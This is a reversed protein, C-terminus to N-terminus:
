QPGMQVYYFPAATPITPTAAAGGASTATLNGITGATANPGVAPAGTAVIPTAGGVGTNASSSLEVAAAIAYQTVTGAGTAPLTRYWYLGAGCAGTPPRTDTPIVTGFSGAPALGTNFCGSALQLPIVGNNEAIYAEVAAQIDRVIKIRGADRAKAPAKLAGPLFAVTLIAIIAIVILLEVLTFAKERQTFSHLTKIM